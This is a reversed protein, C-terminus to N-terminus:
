ASMLSDRVLGEFSDFDLISQQILQECSLYTKELTQWASNLSQNELENENASVLVNRSLNDILLLLKQNANSLNINTDLTFKGNELVQQALTAIM